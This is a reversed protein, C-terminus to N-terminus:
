VENKLVQAPDPRWALVAALVSAPLLAAGAAALGLLAWGALAHLGPWGWWPFGLLLGLPVGVAGALLGRWLLLRQVQLPTAGLAAWIGVEVRRERANNWALALSVGVALALALACVAQALRLGLRRQSDRTAREQELFAQQATAFAERAAAVTLTEGHEEIVTVAPLVRAIDARVQELRNWATRCELARIESLQGQLNMLEQAQYLELYITLDDRTGTEPRCSRVTLPAGLFQIPDGPHLKLGHHIEYGLDVSGRPVVNVEPAQSTDAAASGLRPGTAEVLVSWGREDWRVKRRLVPVLHEVTTLGAAALRQVAEEPLTAAGAGDAYFDGLSQTAPLLVLNFGLRRMAQRLDEDYRQMGARRTAEHRALIAATEVDYARLAALAAVVAGVGLAVAAALLAFSGRRVRCERWALAALSIAHNRPV